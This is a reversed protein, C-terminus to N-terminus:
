GTDMATQMANYIELIVRKTYYGGHAVEDKSKVFPFTEV